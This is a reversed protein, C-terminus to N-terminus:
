RRGCLERLQDATMPPSSRHLMAHCNPCVPMLDVTPDIVYGDGIKSIPVVHHVHIYDRGLSGFTDEFDFGCVTCNTGHVRLCAERNLPSREYRNVQVSILAGEPYGVLEERDESYEMPLLSLSMALVFFLQDFTQNLTFEDIIHSVDLPTKKISLRYNTWNDPWQDNVIPDHRVNNILLEISNGDALCSNCHKVFQGRMATDADGMTRLLSAAYSGPTFSTELTRWGISTTLVFSEAPHLDVPTLVFIRQGGSLDSTCDFGLGLRRLILESLSREDKSM